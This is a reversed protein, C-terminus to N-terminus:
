SAVSSHLHLSIALHEIYAQQTPKEMWVTILEQRGSVQTNVSKPAVCYRQFSRRPTLALTWTEPM